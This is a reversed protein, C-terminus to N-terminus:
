QYRVIPLAASSPRSIVTNRATSRMVGLMAVAFEHAFTQLAVLGQSLTRKVCHENQDGSSLQISPVSIRPELITSRSRLHGHQPLSATRSASVDCFDPTTQLWQQCSSLVIGGDPLMGFCLRKMWQGCAASLCHRSSLCLSIPHYRDRSGTWCPPSAPNTRLPKGEGSKKSLFPLIRGSRHRRLSPKWGEERLRSKPAQEVTEAALDEFKPLSSLPGARVAVPRPSRFTEQLNGAFCLRCRGSCKKCCPASRCRKTGARLQQKRGRAVGTRSTIPM